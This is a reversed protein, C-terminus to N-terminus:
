LKQIMTNKYKAKLTKNIPKKGIYLCKTKARYSAEIDRLDDGIYFSRDLIFKYKQASNLFLGHNPKRFFHNSSFHHISIFFELIKVGYKFCDKKIKNNIKKLNKLTLDGTSIGAQNSICLIIKKKLIKRYKKLFVTNVKLENLDRVYYHKDNKLNLVGDRDVLIVKKSFYKRTNKLRTPDSISLYGTDNLYFDVLNKKVLKNILFNFVLNKHNYNSIVIKKSIIMYGIEVYNSLFNKKFFYKKIKNRKKDILLNGNKKNCITLIFKSKNKKFNDYLDHLNLSSYNDCYLLLFKLKLLKKANYLRKYTEIEPKDYQYKIRVGFKKGNGFYTKIKQYKYGVLLIFEKIGNSKCQEILHLLFPKNNVYVMPKPIRKTITSLRRGYGGCFIVAQDIM